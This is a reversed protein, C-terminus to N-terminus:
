PQGRTIFVRGKWETPLVGSSQLAAVHFVRGAVYHRQLLPNLRVAVVNVNGDGLAVNM